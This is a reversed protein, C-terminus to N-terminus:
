DTTVIYLFYVSKQIDHEKSIYSQVYIRFIFLFYIFTLINNFSGTIRSFTKLWGFIRVVDTWRWIEFSYKVKSFVSANNKKLVEWWIKINGYNVDDNSITIVITIDGNNNHNNQM